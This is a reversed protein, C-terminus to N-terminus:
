GEYISKQSNNKLGITSTAAFTIFFMLIEFNHKYCIEAVIGFPILGIILWVAILGFQGGVHLGRWATAIFVSLFILLGPVGFALGFDIWGSHTQSDLEQQVNAHNLMGVFSRNISGYGMPYESILILGETAWSVREYTNGAVPIGLHNRPFSEGVVKNWHSSNYRWFNHQDLQSSINTDEWLANWGQSAFHTHVKWGGILILLVLLAPVALRWKFHGRLFIARFVLTLALLFCLGLSVAVGNKTNAVISSVIASTIGLFWFVSLILSKQDYKKSILDVLSACAVSIAIVGFFAAEIKKFVFAYVFTSPLMLSGQQYSLYLYAGLNIWSIIFLSIFFYPKLRDNLRLSLSLGVAIISCGLVRLWISKLEQWELIPNLSFFWFHILVWIFILLLLLLPLMELTRRGKFFNSKIIIAMSSVLGIGLLIHRLAITNPLVWITLLGAVSLVCIATLFEMNKNQYSIHNM